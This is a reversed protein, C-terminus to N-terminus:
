ACDCGPPAVGIAGGVVLAAGLRLIIDITDM